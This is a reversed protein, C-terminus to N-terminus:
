SLEVEKGSSDWLTFIDDDSSNEILGKTFQEAPLQKYFDAVIELEGDRMDEHIIRFKGEPAVFDDTTIQGHKNPM